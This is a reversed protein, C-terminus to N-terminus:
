GGVRKDGIGRGGEVVALGEYVAVGQCGLRGRTDQEQPGVSLPVEHGETHGAFGEGGGNM